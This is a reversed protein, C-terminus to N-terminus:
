DRAAAGDARRREPLDAFRVGTVASLPPPRSRDGDRELLMSACMMDNGLGTRTLMSQNM